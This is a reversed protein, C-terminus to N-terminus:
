RPRPRFELPFGFHALSDMIIFSGIRADAAAADNPKRSNKGGGDVPVAAGVSDKDETTHNNEPRQRNPSRENKLWRSVFCPLRNMINLFFTWMSYYLQGEVVKKNNKAAWWSGSPCSLPNFKEKNYMTCLTAAKNYLSTSCVCRHSHTHRKKEFNSILYFSRAAPSDLAASDRSM